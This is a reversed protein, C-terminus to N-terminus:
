IISEKEPLPLPEREQQRQQQQQQQQQQMQLPRMLSRLGDAALSDPLNNANNAGATAPPRAADTGGNSAAATGAPARVGDAGGSTPPMEVYISWWQRQGSGALWFVLTAAALLGSLVFFVSRWSESRAPQGRVSM